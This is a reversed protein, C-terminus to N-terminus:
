AMNELGLDRTLSRWVDESPRTYMPHIDHPSVQSPMGPEGMLRQYTPTLHSTNTYQYNFDPAHLSASHIPIEGATGYFGREDAFGLGPASMDQVPYPYDYLNMESVLHVDRGSPISDSFAPANNRDINVVGLGRPLAPHGDSNPQYDQNSSAGPSSSASKTTANIITKQGGLVNLVDTEVGKQPFQVGAKYETYTKIARDLLSQLVTMTAPPRCPKSGESYFPLANEFERLANPALPCGPAQIVIAGLIICSSLIGSWFFWCKSTPEPHNPYLGKLSTILRCASRYIALVSPTYEHQLIDVKQQLAQVFYSRHLYLLDSERECVVCYQQMAKVPDPSWSRGAESAAVPSQLHSVIPFKRIKADLDLVAAYSQRRASFFYQVSISLCSASYRYKWAHFGLETEGNPKTHPEIDDPFRCDTHQIMTVPPRGNVVSTWADYTYLEWFLRRRRQQEEYNLNWGSSDRHLGIRLAIRTCLGMLMWRMENSARDSNYYYRVMTFMAQITACTAEQTIPDLSLAAKALAFYRRALGPSSPDPEFMVAAALVSFFAAIHHSHVGDLSVMGDNHYIPGLITNTLDSRSIPDYMWAVEKYYLDVLQMARNQMPLYPILLYKNYSCDKLGFPFANMLEILEYPLANEEPEQRDESEDHEFPLLNQLYESAASEGHYQAQGDSGISLSGISSSLDQLGKEYLEDYEQGPPEPLSTAPHPNSSNQGLAAELERVRAQLTKIQDSLRQTTQILIKNGKTAALAGDPCINACGRRICAQCPFKRDCKLKSRRCEACSLGTKKASSETNRRTEM